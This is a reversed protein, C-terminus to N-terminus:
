ILFGAISAEPRRGAGCGTGQSAGRKRATDRQKQTAM